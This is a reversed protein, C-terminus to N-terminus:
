VFPYIIDELGRYPAGFSKQHTLFDLLLKDGRAQSLLIGTMRPKNPGWHSGMTFYPKLYIIM